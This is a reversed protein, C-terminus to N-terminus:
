MVACSHSEQQLLPPPGAVKCLETLKELITAASPRVIHNADWCAEVIDRMGVLLPNEPILHLPPREGGSAVRPVFDTYNRIEEFPVAQTIVEWMIIGYSYIDVKENYPFCLCVEPAMYRLSGTNGTITYVDSSHLRKQVCIVLGFDILKLTGTSTFAINDPKLDRHILCADPHFQEHLYHLASAFSRGIDLMRQPTLHTQFLSSSHVLHSLTGASLRELILFSRGYMVGRGYYGMVHDHSIRCLIRHESEFEADALKRDHVDNKIIKLIVSGMNKLRASCISSNSGYVLHELQSLDKESIDNNRSSIPEIDNIDFECVHKAHFSDRHKTLEHKGDDQKSISIQAVSIGARVKSSRSSEGAHSLYDLSPANFDLHSVSVKISTKKSLGPGLMVKKSPRVFPAKGFRGLKALQL